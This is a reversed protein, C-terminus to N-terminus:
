DGKLIQYREMVSRSYKSSYVGSNWLERTRKEGMNYAMLVQHTSDYKVTLLSLIYVGSKINQEPDYFDSIGLEESLWEHNCSNIQMLGSDHTGNRNVNFAKIDGESEKSIIARVLNSDVSYENSYKEIYSDIAAAQEVKAQYRAEVVISFGAVPEEYALAKKSPMFILLFVTIFLLKKM